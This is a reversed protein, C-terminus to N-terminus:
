ACGVASWDFFAGFFRRSACRNVNPAIRSDVTDGKRDLVSVTKPSEDLTRCSSRTSRSRRASNRFYLLPRSASEGRWRPGAAGALLNQAVTLYLDVDQQSLTPKEEAAVSARSLEQHCDELLAQLAPILIEGELEQLLNAHSQHWAHFVEDTTVLVPLDAAYIQYYVSGFSHRQKVDVVVLGNREFLEQEENSMKLGRGITNYHKAERPDFALLNPPDEHLGLHDQLQRYTWDPYRELLREYQKGALADAQGDATAAAVTPGAQLALWALLILGSTGAVSRM